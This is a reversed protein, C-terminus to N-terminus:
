SDIVFFVFPISSMTHGGDKNINKRQASVKKGKAREPAKLYTKPEMAPNHMKTPGTLTM